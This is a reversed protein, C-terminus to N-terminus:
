NLGTLFKTTQYLSLRNIIKLQFAALNVTKNNTLYRRVHYIICIYSFNFSNIKQEKERKLNFISQSEILTVHSETKEYAGLGHSETKEYAGLGHSELKRMPVLDMLSLKRMPVLDMLSLKRMPVLDMLSLKRM